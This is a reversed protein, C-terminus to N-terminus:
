TELEERELTEGIYYCYDGQVRYRHLSTDDTNRELGPLRVFEDQEDWDGYDKRERPVYLYNFQHGDKPEDRFPMQERHLPGNIITRHYNGVHRGLFDVTVLTGQHVCDYSMTCRVPIRTDLSNFALAGLSRPPLELERVALQKVHRLSSALARMLPALYQGLVYKAGVAVEEDPVMFSCYFHHDFPGDMGVMEGRVVEMDPTLSDFLKFAEQLTENTVLHGKM